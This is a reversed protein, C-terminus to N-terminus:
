GETICTLLLDTLSPFSMPVAPQGGHHLKLTVKLAKDVWREAMLQCLEWSSQKDMDTKKKRGLKWAQHVKTFLLQQADM